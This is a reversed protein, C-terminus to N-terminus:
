RNSKDYYSKIRYAIDWFINKAKYIRYYPKLTGGFGAFLDFLSELMSGEFDFSKAKKGSELIAHHLLFPIAGNKRHNVDSGILMSYAKDQDFILYISAIIKGSNDRVGLIMRKSNAHLWTDLKSFTDLSLMFKIGKNNLVHHVQNYIIEPNDLHIIELAQEAKRIKNRINTAVDSLSWKSIDEIIFSYRTTQQYNQWYFPLWNTFNYYFSQSYYVINKPLSHILATIIEKENKTHTEVKAANNQIIYIGGYPTLPPMIIANQRYKKTIFYPLCATINDDNDTTVVVDWDGGSTTIDLWDPHFFIPLNQPSKCFQRYKQKNNV